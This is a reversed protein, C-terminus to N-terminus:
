ENKIEDAIFPKAVTELREVRYIMEQIANRHLYLVQTQVKDAQERAYMRYSLMIVLAMLVYLALTNIKNFM